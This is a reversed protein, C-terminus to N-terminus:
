IFRQDAEVISTPNKFNYYSHVWRMKRLISSNSHKIGNKMRQIIKWSATPEIGDLYDIFFEGDEEAILPIESIKARLIKPDVQFYLSLLDESVIIRPTEARSSELKYADILGNSFLFGDDFFHKGVAIGGRCLLGELFLDRQMQQVIKCFEGFDIGQWPTSLIISDSFQVINVALKKAENRIKLHLRYLKELYIQKGDPSKCDSEVMQSFGLLDVFAVVYFDLKAETM